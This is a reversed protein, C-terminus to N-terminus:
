GELGSEADSDAPNGALNEGSLTQSGMAMQRTKTESLQAIQREHALIQDM